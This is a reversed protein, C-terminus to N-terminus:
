ALKKDVGLNQLVQIKDVGTYQRRWCKTSVLIKDVGTNQWRWYKTSALIKNIGIIKTPEHIKYNGINQPQWHKTAAL